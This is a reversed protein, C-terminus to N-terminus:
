WSSTRAVTPAPCIRARTPAICRVFILPHSLPSNDRLVTSVVTSVKESSRPGLGRGIGALTPHVGAVDTLWFAAPYQSLRTISSAVWPSGAGLAERTISATYPLRLPNGLVIVATTPSALSLPAFTAAEVVTGAHLLLV